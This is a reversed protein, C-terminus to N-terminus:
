EEEVEITDIYFKAVADDDEDIWMTKEENTFRQEVWENWEDDELDIRIHEFLEEVAEKLREKAKEITPCVAWLTADAGKYWQYSELVAYM